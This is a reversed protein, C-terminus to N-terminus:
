RRSGADRFVGKVDVLRPIISGDRQAYLPHHFLHALYFGDKWFPNEKMAPVFYQLGYIPSLKRVDHADNFEKIALRGGNYDGFTYGTIDDFYCFVRPLLQEHAADLVQLAAVTSTYLDL